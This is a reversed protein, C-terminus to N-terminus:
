EEDPIDDDSGEFGELGESDDSESEDEEDREEDREEAESWESIVLWRVKQATKSERRDAKAMADGSRETKKAVKRDRKAEVKAIKRRLEEKSASPQSDQTELLDLEQQLKSVKRDGKLQKREAGATKKFAKARKKTMKRSQKREMRAAQNAGMKRLFNDPKVQQPMDFDLPQVYGELARVRRVRPDDRDPMEEAMAKAAQKSSYRSLDDPQQEIDPLQLKEHPYHVKSAMKKTTLVNLHLGAPHFLNANMAKVYARTRAYSTAASAVGSAVQLGIGAWQVPDLGYFMGMVGGVVSAGQYLPHAVFAENLGDIFTAFTEKDIGHEALGPAYARVFPSFFAGKWTKSTQPIVVPLPMGHRSASVSPAITLDHSLSSQLRNDSDTPKLSPSLSRPQNDHGAQLTRANLQQFQLRLAEDEPQTKPQLTHSSKDDSYLPQKEPPFGTAQEYSPPNSM